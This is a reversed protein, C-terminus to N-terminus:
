QVPVSDNGLILPLNNEPNTADLHAGWFYLAGIILLAVIIIVGVIPGIATKQAPPGGEGSALSPRPFLQEKIDSIQPPPPM